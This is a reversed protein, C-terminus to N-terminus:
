YLSPHRGKDAGHALLSEQGGAVVAKMRGGVSDKEEAIAPPVAPVEARMRARPDVFHALDVHLSRAAKEARQAEQLGCEEVSNM